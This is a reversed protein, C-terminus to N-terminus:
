MKIKRNRNRFSKAHLSLYDSFTGASWIISLFNLYFLLWWINACPEGCVCGRPKILTVCTKIYCGTSKPSPPEESHCCRMLVYSLQHSVLSPSFSDVCGGLGDVWDSERRWFWRSPIAAQKLLGICSTEVIFPSPNPIPSNPDHFPSFHSHYYFYSPFILCVNSSFHTFLGSACFSYM